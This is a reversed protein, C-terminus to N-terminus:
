NKTSSLLMFSFHNDSCKSCTCSKQCVDCCLCLPGDFTRSYEDFNKFLTDRRCHSENTTYESMSRETYRGTSAKKVLIALSPLHDRGARGTEQIYGEVDNPPGLHIVQRIDPCDIGMGFAVTAVVVRLCSETTFIDLISEKM